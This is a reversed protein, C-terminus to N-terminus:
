SFNSQYRVFHLRPIHERFVGTNNNCVKDQYEKLMDSQQKLRTQFSIVESTHEKDKCVLKENLAHIEDDKKVLECIRSQLEDYTCKEKAKSRQLEETLKCNCIELASMEKTGWDKQDKLAKLEKQLISLEIQYQEM